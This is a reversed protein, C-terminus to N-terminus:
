DLYANQLQWVFEKIVKANIYSLLNVLQMAFHLLRQPLLPLYAIKALLQQSSAM